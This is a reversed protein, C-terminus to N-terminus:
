GAVESETCQENVPISWLHPQITAIRKQAIAIYDQNLEIGIYQRNHQLAVLAVTAAGMFPDLVICKGSGTNNSCTCTPQWGITKSGAPAIMTGSLGDTTRSGYGGSKPGNRIVMPTREVVRTWAAGCHECAMPSSGALICPEVLKPPMVAFHAEPFPQTNVTWVSRRNRGLPHNWERLGEGIPSLLANATWTSEGGRDRINSKTTHPERIADADYYYHESKALLFIHEHAKTPRDKVSEPMANGKSWIVDSRLYWGDEQLAIATRSPIMMLDKSKFGPPIRSVPYDPQWHTSLIEETHGGRGGGAYTDGINLWCVGDHKLVRRVERFVAVLKAIYAQPTTELGIEFCKDPHEDPLYSRLAYYPPSTVCMQVCEDPLTQLISLADGHLITNTNM